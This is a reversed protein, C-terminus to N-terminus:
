HENKPVLPRRVIDRPDLGLDTPRLDPECWGRRKLGEVLEQATMGNPQSYVLWLLRIHALNLEPTVAM